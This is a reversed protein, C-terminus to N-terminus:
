IGTQLSPITEMSNDSSSKLFMNSISLLSSLYDVMVIESNEGEGCLPIFHHGESIALFQPKGEKLKKEKWSDGLKTAQISVM